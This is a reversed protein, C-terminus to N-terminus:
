GESLIKELTHTNEGFYSNHLWIVIQDFNLKLNEVFSSNWFVSCVEVLMKVWWCQRLLSWRSANLLWGWWGSHCWDLRWLMLSDTLLCYDSEPGVFIFHTGRFASDESLMHFYIIMSVPGLSCHLNQWSRRSIEKLLWLPWLPWAPWTKHPWKM